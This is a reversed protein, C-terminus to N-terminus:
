ECVVSSDNFRRAYCAKSEAKEKAGKVNCRELAIGAERAM